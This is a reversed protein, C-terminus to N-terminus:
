AVKSAHVFQFSIRRLPPPCIGSTSIVKDPSGFVARFTMSIARLLMQLLASESSPPAHGALTNNLPQGTAACSYFMGELCELDHAFRFLDTETCVGGSLCGASQM